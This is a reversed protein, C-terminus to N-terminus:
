YKKFKYYKSFSRSKEMEKWWGGSDETAKPGSASTERVDRSISVNRANSTM